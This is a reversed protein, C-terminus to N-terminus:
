DANYHALHESETYPVQSNEWLKFVFKIVYHRDLSLVKCNLNLYGFGKPLLPLSHFRLLWKLGVKFLFDLSLHQVQWSAKLFLEGIVYFYSLNVKSVVVSVDYKVQELSPAWVKFTLEIWGGFNLLLNQLHKLLILCFVLSWNCSKDDKIRLLTLFSAEM